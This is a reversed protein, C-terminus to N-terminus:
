DTTSPTPESIDSHSPIEDSSSPPLPRLVPSFEAKVQEEQPTANGATGKKHITQKTTKTEADTEKCM